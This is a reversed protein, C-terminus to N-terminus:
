ASIELRDDANNVVEEQERSEAREIEYDAKRDGWYPYYDPCHGDADPMLDLDCGYSWNECDDHPCTM